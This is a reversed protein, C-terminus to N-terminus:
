AFNSLGPNFCRPGAQRPHLQWVAGVVCPLSLIEHAPMACMCPAHIPPNPRGIHTYLVWSTQHELELIQPLLVFMRVMYKIHLMCLAYMHVPCMCPCVCPCVPKPMCQPVKSPPSPLTVAKFKSFNLLKSIKLIQMLFVTHNRHVRVFVHVPVCAAAHMHLHPPVM